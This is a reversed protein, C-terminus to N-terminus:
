YNIQMTLSNDGFDLVIPMEPLMTLHDHLFDYRVNSQNLFVNENRECNIDISNHIGILKIGSETSEVWEINNKDLNFRSLIIAFYKSSVIAKM